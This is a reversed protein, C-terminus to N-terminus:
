KSEGKEVIKLEAGVAGLVCEAYYLSLGRQGYVYNEVTSKSVGAKKAIEGYTMGLHEKQGKLFQRIEDIVM